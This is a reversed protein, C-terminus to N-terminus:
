ARIIFFLFFFYHSISGCLVFFHWITHMFRYKKMVYFIVGISYFLGGILLLIFGQFSILQLLPKVATIISWGM